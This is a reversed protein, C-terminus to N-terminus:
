IKNLFDDISDHRESETGERYERYAELMDLIEKKPKPTIDVIRAREKKPLWICAYREYEQGKGLAYMSLQWSLSEKDLKSTTKYDLLTVYGDVISISDLRGCYEYGYSIMEEQSLVKIDHEKKLRVYENFTQMELPTLNFEEGNNYKEIADHIHTGWEAKANLIHRPIGDYKNPFIFKLIDSVSPVIIGNKIYTHSEDIFEIVEM